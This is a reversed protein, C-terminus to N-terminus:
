NISLTVVPVVSDWTNLSEKSLALKEQFVLINREASANGRSHDPTSFRQTVGFALLTDRVLDNLFQPGKDTIVLRSPGFRGFLATLFDAASSPNVSGIAQAEVYRTFVDRAVIVFKNGRITVPLPGLTDVSWCERALNYDFSKMSGKPLQREVKVRQCKDCSRVHAEVDQKLTPWWVDALRDLTILIGGHGGISCNHAAKLLDSRKNIQNEAMELAEQDDEHAYLTWDDFNKPITVYFLINDLAEDNADNVPARSLCDIDQHVNGRTYAIKFDCESVVTLSDTFSIM